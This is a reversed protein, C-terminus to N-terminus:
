FVKNKHPFFTFRMSETNCDTNKCKQLVSNLALVMWSIRIIINAM